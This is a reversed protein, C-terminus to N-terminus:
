KKKMQDQVIKEIYFFSSYPSLNTDTGGCYSDYPKLLNIIYHM